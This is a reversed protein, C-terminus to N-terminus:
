VLTAIADIEVSAHAPALREVGLLASAPPREVDVWRDRVERIRGLDRRELDTVYPSLRYGNGASM